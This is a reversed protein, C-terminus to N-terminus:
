IFKELAMSPSFAWAGPLPVLVGTAAGVMLLSGTGLVTRRDM